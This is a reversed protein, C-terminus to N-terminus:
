QKQGPRVVVPPAPQPPESREEPLSPMADWGRKTANYEWPLGEGDIAMIFTGMKGPAIQAIGVAIQKIQRM